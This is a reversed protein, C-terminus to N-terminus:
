APVINPGDSKIRGQQKLVLLATHLAAPTTTPDAEKLTQLSVTGASALHELILAKAREVNELNEQPPAPKLVTRGMPSVVTDPEPPLQLEDELPDLIAYHAQGAVHMITDGLDHDWEMSATCPYAHLRKSVVQYRLDDDIRKGELWRAVCYTAGCPASVEVHAREIRGDRVDLRVEPRGVHFERRFRALVSGAPPDLSCFPKPFAIEIGADRCITEAEAQAAGGVWGRAEIPAIIGRTGWRSCQRAVEVLVQEHVHIALLVDHPPVDTPVLDGPTELLHPLAAPFTIVKAIRGGFRRAYPERCEVCDPGCARCFDKDGVLNAIVKDAYTGSFQQIYDSQPRQGAPPTESKLVLVNM